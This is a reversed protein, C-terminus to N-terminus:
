GRPPHFISLSHTPPLQLQQSYDLEQSANLEHEDQEVTVWAQDTLVRSITMLPEAPVVPKNSCFPGRCPLKPAHIPISGHASTQIVTHGNLITAYDGCAASAQRTSLFSVFLSLVAVGIVHRFLSTPSIIM